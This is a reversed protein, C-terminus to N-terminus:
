PHHGPPLMALLHLRLQEVTQLTDDREWSPLVKQCVFAAFGLMATNVAELEIVSLFLRVEVAESSIGMLRQSVEQLVQILAQRQRTRPTARHLYALYGSIISRLAALDHMGISVTSLDDSREAPKM